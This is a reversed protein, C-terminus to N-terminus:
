ERHGVCQPGRIKRWKEVADRRGLAIAGATIAKRRMSENLDYHPLGRHGAHHQFWTRKLGLRAAFTHLESLTDAFLHCATPWRWRGGTGTKIQPDVYVPVNRIGERTANCAASRSSRAAGARARNTEEWARGATACNALGATPSPYTM